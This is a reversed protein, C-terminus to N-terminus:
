ALPDTSGDGNDGNDGNNKAAAAADDKAKKEAAQRKKKEAATEKKAPAEDAEVEMAEAAGNGVYNEDDAEKQPCTFPKGPEIRVQKGGEKRYIAHIARLKVNAM